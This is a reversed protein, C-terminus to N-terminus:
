NEHTKDRLLDKDQWKLPSVTEGHEIGMVELIKAHIAYVGQIYFAGRKIDFANYV